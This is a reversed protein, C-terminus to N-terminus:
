VTGLTEGTPSLGGAVLLRGETLLTTTHYARPSLGTPPLSQFEQTELHFLEATEVVGGNAGIGGLVLVTGGPLLTATHWARPQQLGTPLLATSDIVQGGHIPGPQINSKSVFRSPLIAFCVTSCTM